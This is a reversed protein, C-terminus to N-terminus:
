FKNHTISLLDPFKFRRFFEKIKKFASGMLYYEYGEDEDLFYDCYQGAYKPSFFCNNIGLDRLRDKNKCYESDCSNGYYSCFLCKVEYKSM